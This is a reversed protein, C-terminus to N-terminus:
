ARIAKVTKPSPSTSIGQGPTSGAIGGWGVRGEKQPFMAEEEGELSLGSGVQELSGKRVVQGQATVGGVVVEGVDTHSCGEERM